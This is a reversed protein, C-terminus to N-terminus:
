RTVSPTSNIVKTSGDLGAKQTNKLKLCDDRDEEGEESSSLGLQVDGKVELVTPWENKLLFQGDLKKNLSTSTQKNRVSRNLLM